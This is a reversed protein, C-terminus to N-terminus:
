KKTQFEKPLLDECVEGCDGCLQVQVPIIADQPTGAAIKNIKLFKTGPIFITGGCEQCKIEEAKSLDLKIQQQPPPQQGGGQMGIIKAM